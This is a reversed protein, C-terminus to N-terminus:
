LSDRACNWACGETSGWLEHHVNWDGCLVLPSSCRKNLEYITQAIPLGTKGPRAYISGICLPKGYVTVQAVVVELHESCLDSVKLSHQPLSKRVFLAASGNTFSPITPNSYRVYGPISRHPPLGAECLALIPIPVSALYLVLEAFRSQLGACNWQMIVPVHRPKLATKSNKSNM